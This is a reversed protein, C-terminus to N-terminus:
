YLTLIDPEGDTIALSNEYHASLSGDKTVITWNDNLIEIEHSGANVMPEVAFTMGKEIRLGRGPPKYNPISPDEHMARGIGHGVYERVVSFGNSEAYDQIAKSIQYLHFGNRAYKIGEFFSQKTVDILRQAEDSVNGCAFTRAADGHYKNLIVGVDVSVIDGDKLKRIGPIGHIVEDNVSINMSKPFGRYNKFSPIGGKARIFEDVTRDIDITAVGNRILKEVMSLVDFTLKGAARMKQIEENSKITVAM